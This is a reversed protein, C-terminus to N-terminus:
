VNSGNVVDILESTIEQQRARHYMTHLRDVIDNANDTANKMAVMRSAHESLKADALATFIRSEIYIEMTQDIVEEAPIDYIYDIKSPDPKDLVVPLIMEKHVEQTATNIYHSHMLIVEDIVKSMFVDKIVTAYQRFSMTTVDDRNYIIEQNVLPLKNKQAFYFGKKGLVVVQYSEKSLSKVEELFAKFLNNHYSGCLGRDSTILVYLKKEGASPKMMHHTEDMTHGAYALIDEIKEVFAKAHNELETAKKIKSLAINHMAQTISSTKKVANMRLKIDKLGM